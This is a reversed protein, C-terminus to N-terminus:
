DFKYKEARHLLKQWVFFNLLGIVLIMIALGGLFVTEQSHYSANVLLSGLGFLDLSSSSNPIYNHLAEAVIIINWGSAWALLSGTLIHPFIAPLTVFWLKRWGVAGFVSAAASVDTPIQKLGGIMSFILSWIMTVILIFIASGEFLGFKIFVLVIVPFFALVPISQMIDFTPLLIRESKPSSTAWLAMPVAITLAVAYAVLLRSFTAAAALLLDSSSIQEFNVFPHNPSLFRFAFIIAVTLALIIVVITSFHRKFSTIYSFHYQHHYHRTGTTVM